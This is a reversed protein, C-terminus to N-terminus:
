RLLRRCRALRRLFLSRRLSNPRAPTAERGTAPCGGCVCYASVILACSRRAVLLDWAICTVAADQLLKGLSNCATRRVANTTRQPLRSLVWLAAREEAGSFVFFLIRSACFAPTTGHRLAPVDRIATRLDRTRSAETESVAEWICTQGAM